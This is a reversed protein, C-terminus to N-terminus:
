NNLTCTKVLDQILQAESLKNFELMYKVTSPDGLAPRDNIDIVYTNGKSDNRLDVRTYHHKGPIAHVAKLAVEKAQESVPLFTIEDEISSGPKVFVEEMVNYSNHFDRRFGAYVTDKVVLVTYEPGPLYPQVLIDSTPFSQHMKQLQVTLEAINHCISSSDIGLAGWGINLKCFLPWSQDLNQKKLLKKLAKRSMMEAPVLAQQLSKLGAKAIHSQMITKNDSNYIFEENGGSMPILKSIPHKAWQKVVSIGPYGDWEGGDCINLVRVNGNHQDYLTKMDDLFGPINGLSVYYGSVEYEETPLFKGMYTIFEPSYWNPDDFPVDPRCPIAIVVHTKEKATTKVVDVAQLGSNLLLAYFCISIASKITALM